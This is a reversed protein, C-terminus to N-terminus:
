SNSKLKVSKATPSNPYEKSPLNSPLNDKIIFRSKGTSISRKRPTHQSDIPSSILPHLNKLNKPSSTLGTLTQNTVYVVSNKTLLSPTNLPALKKKPPQLSSDRKEPKKLPKPKTHPTSRRRNNFDEHNTQAMPDPTPLDATLSLKRSGPKPTNPGSTSLRINSKKPLPAQAPKISFLGPM